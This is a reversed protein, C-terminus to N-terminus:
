QPPPPDWDGALCSDVGHRPIFGLERAALGGDYIRDISNPPQWGKRAMREILGPCRRKIVASAERALEECDDRRFPTAGSIVYTAPPGSRELALAHAEAVDRRDIGRYLRYWAMDPAPEPFCRSMRLSTVTMKGGASAVLREGDFKTQDYIDRPEPDLREDVWVSVGDPELAHGYLSTTSTLVFHGAGSDVALDLLRATAKVNTRHFDADSRSGVHPAHLAATHVIADITGLRHRWEAVDHCDGVISVQTGPRLDLGIVDHRAALRAVVGSGILGAAGTVLVRM